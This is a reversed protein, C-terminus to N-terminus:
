RLHGYRLATAGAGTRFLVQSGVQEPILSGDVRLALVVLGSGGGPCLRVQAVRVAGPFVIRFYKARVAPFTATAPAEVSGARGASARIEDVKRFQVGDDSAELSMTAGGAFISGAGAVVQTYIEVSRIEGADEALELVLHAPGGAAAPVIDVAAALDGDTLKAPDVPGNGSKASRLLSGYSRNEGALSPFALVAIDRYYGRKTYPRPLKVSISTGGKFFTESWVLQQM